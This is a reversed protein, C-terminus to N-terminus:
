PLDGLQRHPNHEHSQRLVAFSDRRHMGSTLQRARWIGRRGIPRIHEAASEACLRVIAHQTATNHADLAEHFQEIDTYLNRLVKDAQGGQKRVAYRVSFRDIQNLPAPCPMWRCKLQKRLKWWHVRAMVRRLNRALPYRRPQRFGTYAVSGWKQFFEVEEFFSKDLATLSGHAILGIAERATLFVPYETPSSAANPKDPTSAYRLRQPKSRRAAILEPRRHKSTGSKPSSPKTM